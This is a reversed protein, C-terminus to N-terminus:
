NIRLVNTKEGTDMKTDVNSAYPALHGPALHAYRRVMETSEWAGLEQLIHLPTGNQVHWSAWTHRLDHWRFNTIGARKLAQRWARTNPQLVRKNKYTFVWVQNKGIQRRLVEWADNNIPIGISKEGKAEDAHIWAVRRPMDIQDWRLGTVNSARLGTSLSFRTM